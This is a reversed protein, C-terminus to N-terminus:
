EVVPFKRIKGTAPETFWVQGGAIALAAAEVGTSLAPGDASADQGNGALVQIYGGHVPARYIRRTGSPSIGMDSDYFYVCGSSAALSGNNWFPTTGSSTYGAVTSFLPLSVTENVRDLLYIGSNNDTFLVLSGSVVVGRPGNVDYRNAAISQGALLNVGNPPNGYLVTQTIGGDEFSRIARNAYDAVLFRPGDVVLRYPLNFRANVSAGGNGWDSQDDWSLPAVGRGAVTTVTGSGDSSFRRIRNLLTTNGSGDAESVYVYPESVVIGDLKKFYAAGPTIGDNTATNLTTTGTGYSGLLTGTDSYKFIYGREGDHSVVWVSSGSVALGRVEGYQAAVTAITSISPSGNSKLWGGTAIVSQPLLMGDKVAIAKITAAKDVPIAVGSYITSGTTPESGDTTYHITAGPTTTSISVSVSAGTFVGPAPSFVPTAPQLSLDASSSSSASGVEDDGGCGSLALLAALIVHVFNRM